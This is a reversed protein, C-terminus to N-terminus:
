MHTFKGSQISQRWVHESRDILNFHFGPMPSFVDDVEAHSIGVQTGGSVDHVFQNFCGLFRLIM